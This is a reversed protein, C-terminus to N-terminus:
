ITALIDEDFLLVFDVEKGGSTVKLAEGAFAGYIVRQGVKLDTIEPGVAVLTGIAKREQEINSPTILGHESVRSKEDDQRVLAQKGRPTIIVEKSM